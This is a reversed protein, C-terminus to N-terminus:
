PRQNVKPQKMCWKRQLKRMVAKLKQAWTGRIGVKAEARPREPAATVARGGVVEKEVGVVEREVGVANDEDTQEKEAIVAGEEATAETEAKVESGQAIPETEVAMGKAIGIEAGMVSDKVILTETTVADDMIIVETEVLVVGTETGIAPAAVTMWVEAAVGADTGTGVTLPAETASGVLKTRSKGERIREREAGVAVAIKKEVRRTVSKAVV